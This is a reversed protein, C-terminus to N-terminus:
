RFAESPTIGYFNRFTKIFHAQDYFGVDFYLKNNRLSQRSPKATLIHQFRVVNSFAKPTTGIYHNFVRRLQRPSLGTDLDKETDLNGKHQFIQQLSRFFRDDYAVERSIILKYLHDNLISSICEFSQETTITIALWASFRPLVDRLPLSRNSVQRANTSFLLPFAAPLFRIGIYDFSTGIPFETYKRCFGMVFNEAPQHHDLFIDICGDSVVRYVFPAPLPKETKLQWFTYVFSNIAPDPPLETYRILQDGTRISPQVPTYLEKITEFANM